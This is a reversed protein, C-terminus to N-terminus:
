IQGIQYRLLVDQAGFGKGFPCKRFSDIEHHFGPALRCFRHGFPGPIDDSALEPCLSNASCLCSEKLTLIQRDVATAAYFIEVVGLEESRLVKPPQGELSEHSEVNRRM